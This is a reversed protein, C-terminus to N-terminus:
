ITFLKKKCFIEVMIVVVALYVEKNNTVNYWSICDTGKDNEGAAIVNM